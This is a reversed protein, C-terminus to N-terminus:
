VESGGLCDPSQKLRVDKEFWEDPTLTDMSLAHVPGALEDALLENILRHRFVLTKDKFADSVLVVKFHSESGDPVNHRGSENLVELHFPKLAELKTRISLQVPNSHNM